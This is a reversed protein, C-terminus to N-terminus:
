FVATTCEESLVETFEIMAQEDYPRFSDTTDLEFLDEVRTHYYLEDKIMDILALADRALEENLLIYEHGKKKLEKKDACRALIKALIDQATTTKQRTKLKKFPFKYKKAYKLVM